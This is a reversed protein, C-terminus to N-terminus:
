TLRLVVLHISLAEEPEMYKGTLGYNNANRRGIARELLDIIEPPIVISVAVENFGIKFSTTNSAVLLILNSKNKEVFDEIFKLMYYLQIKTIIVLM